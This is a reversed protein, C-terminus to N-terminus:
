SARKKAEANSSSVEPFEIIEAISLEESNQASSGLIFTSLRLVDTDLSETSQNLELVSDSLRKTEQINKETASSIEIRSKEIRDIKQRNNALSDALKKMETTVSEVQSSIQHFSTSTNKTIKEIAEATKESTQNGLAVSKALQDVIRGIKASHQNLISAIEKAAHGSDTALKSIEEAVVGFGLGHEGARAAEVSANFSLLKAQFVIGDILKTKLTVEEFIKPLDRIFKASEEIGGIASLLDVMTQQSAHTLQETGVVADRSAVQVSDAIKKVEEIGLINKQLTAKFETVDEEIRAVSSAQNESSQTVTLSSNEVRNSIQHLRNVNKETSQMFANLDRISRRVFFRSIMSVVAWFLAQWAMAKLTEKLANKIDDDAKYDVEIVAVAKGASNLIPSIASIWQGESDKYLHTHMSKNNDLVWQVNPNLALSNGTYPKDAGMAIFVMKDKAYDPRILTYVDSELHNRIQVEHLLNQLNKFEPSGTATALDGKTFDTVIKEHADAKILISATDAIHALRDGLVFDNQTTQTQYNYYNLGILSFSFICCVIITVRNGYSLSDFPNRAIKM